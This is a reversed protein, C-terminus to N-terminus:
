NPMSKGKPALFPIPPPPHPEGLLMTVSLYVQAARKRPTVSEDLPNPCSFNWSWGGLGKVTNRAFPDLIDFANGTTARHAVTLKGLSGPGENPVSTLSSKPLIPLCTPAKSTQLTLRVNKHNKGSPQNELRRGLDLAKYGELRCGRSVRSMTSKWNTIKEKKREEQERKIIERRRWGKSGSPAQESKWFGLNTKREKRKKYDPLLKLIELQTWTLLVMYHLWTIPNTRDGWRHRTQHSVPSM